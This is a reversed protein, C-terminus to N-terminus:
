YAKRKAQGLRGIGSDPHHMAQFMQRIEEDTLAEGRAVKVWLSRGRIPHAIGATTPIQMKMKM